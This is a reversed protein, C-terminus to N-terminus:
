AEFQDGAEGFLKLFAHDRVRDGGGNIAERVVEVSIEYTTASQNNAWQIVELVNSAEYINLEDLNWAMIRDTPPAYWLRVRYVPAEHVGVYQDAAVAEIRM